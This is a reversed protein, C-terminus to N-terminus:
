LLVSAQLLDAFNQAAGNAFNVTLKRKAIDVGNVQGTLIWYFASFGANDMAFLHVQIGQSSGGAATLQVPQIVGAINGAQVWVLDNPAFRLWNGAGVNSGDENEVNLTVTVYNAM